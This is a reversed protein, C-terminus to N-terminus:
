FINSFWNAFQSSIKSVKTNSPFISGVIRAPLSVASGAINVVSGILTNGSKASSLGANFGFAGLSIAGSNEASQNSGSIQNVIPSPTAIASFIGTKWFYFFAVVALGLYIITNSKM